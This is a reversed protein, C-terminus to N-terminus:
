PKTVTLALHRLIIKKRMLDLSLNLCAKRKLALIITKPALSQTLPMPQSGIGAPGHSLPRPWESM